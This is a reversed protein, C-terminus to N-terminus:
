KPIILMERPIRIRNGSILTERPLDVIAEDGILRVIRVALTRDQVDEKHVYLTYATDGVKFSVTKESDFMGEGVDVPIRAQNMQGRDRTVGKAQNTLQREESEITTPPSM